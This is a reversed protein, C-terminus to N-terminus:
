LGAGADATTNNDAFSSEYREFWAREATVQAHPLAYVNDFMNIVPGREWARVTTRARECLAKAEAAVNERFDDPLEGREALYADLRAIPDRQAWYQEQDKSRYRTPDDSTTHAGM